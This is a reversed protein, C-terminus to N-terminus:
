HVIEACNDALSLTVTLDSPTIAGPNIVLLQRDRDYRFETAALPRQKGDIDIAVVAEVDEDSALKLPLENKVLRRAFTQIRQLAPAYDSCLPFVDSSSTALAKLTTGYSQGPKVPCPFAEDLVISEVFYESKGFIADASSRFHGAMDEITDVDVLPTITETGLFRPSVGLELGRSKCEKFPGDGPHTRQCYDPFNAYTAGNETFATSCLDPSATPRDLTCFYGSGATCTARCNEVVYAGNCFVKSLELEPAGCSLESGPTCIAGGSTSHHTGNEPHHVGQDDVPVCDYEVSQSPRLFLAEYRYVDCNQTCDADNKGDEHERYSYSALCEDPKSRDDEDSLLVFVAHKPLKSPNQAIYRNLTCIPQESQAGDSGLALIGATIKQQQEAIQGITMEPTIAAIPQPMQFEWTGEVNLGKGRAEDRKACDIMAGKMDSCVQRYETIAHLYPEDTVPDQWVVLPPWGNATRAAESSAGYQTPTLVFFRVEQGHAYSLLNKLGASLSDRSWSLSGSHDAVIVVDFPEPREIALASITEVRTCKPGGGGYGSRSVDLGNGGSSGGFGVNGSVGSEGASSCGLVLTLLCGGLYKRM